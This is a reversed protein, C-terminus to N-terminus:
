MKSCAQFEPFAKYLKEVKANTKTIDPDVLELLMLLSLPFKLASRMSKTNSEGFENNNLYRAQKAEDICVQVDMRIRPNHNIALNALKRWVKPNSVGSKAIADVERYLKGLSDEDQKM